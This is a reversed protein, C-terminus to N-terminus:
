WSDYVVWWRQLVVYLLMFIHEATGGVCNGRTDGRAAVLHRGGVMSSWASPPDSDSDSLPPVGGVGRQYWVTLFNLRFM